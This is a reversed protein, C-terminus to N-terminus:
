RGTGAAAVCMINNSGDRNCGDLGDHLVRETIWERM